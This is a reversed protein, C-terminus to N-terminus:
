TSKFGAWGTKKKIDTWAKGFNGHYDRCVNIRKPSTWKKASKVLYFCKDKAQVQVSTTDPDDTLTWNAEGHTTRPLCDKPLGKLFSSWRQEWKKDGVKIRVSARKPAYKKRPTDKLKRAGKMPKPTIREESESEEGEDESAADDDVDDHAAPRKHTTRPPSRPPSKGV